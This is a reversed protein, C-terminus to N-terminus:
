GIAAALAILLLSHTVAPPSPAQFAGSVMRAPEQSYKRASRSRWQCSGPLPLSESDLLSSSSSMLLTSETSRVSAILLPTAARGAVFGKADRNQAARM